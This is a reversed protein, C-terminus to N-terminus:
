LNSVAEMRNLYTPKKQIRKKLLFLVLLKLVKLRLVSVKMEIKKKINQM